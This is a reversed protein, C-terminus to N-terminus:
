ENSTRRSRFSTLTSECIAYQSSAERRTRCARSLPTAGCYNRSTPWGASLAVAARSCQPGVLLVRGHSGIGQMQYRGAVSASLLLRSSRLVRAASGHDGHRASVPLRPRVAPSRGTPSAPLPSAQQGLQAAQQTTPQASREIAHGPGVLSCWPRAPRGAPSRDRQPDNGRHSGRAGADGPTSETADLLAFCPAASRTWSSRSEPPATAEADLQAPRRDPRLAITTRTPTSGEAAAVSAVERVCEEARRRWTPDAM